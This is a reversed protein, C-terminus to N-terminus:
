NVSSLIMSLLVIVSVVIFIIQYVRMRRQSQTLKSKSNKKM